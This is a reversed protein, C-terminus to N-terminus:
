LLLKGQDALTNPVKLDIGLAANLKRIFYAALKPSEVEENQHVFLYIDNIGADVWSKLRVVWDDLRTYDTPHNAGVYRIFVWPTTLCM